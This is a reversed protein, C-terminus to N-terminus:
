NLVKKSFEFIENRIQCHIKDSGKLYNCLEVSNEIDDPVILGSNNDASNTHTDTGVIVMLNNQNAFKLVMNKNHIDTPQTNIEVGHMFAPDMPEHRLRFPHAQVMLANNKKCYEFLEQQNIRCLDPASRLFNETVGFILFDAWIPQSVSVEIGLFLKFNKSDAYNKACNFESIFEEIWRSFNEHEYYWPQCHNTLMAGQYGGQIKRDILQEFTVQSCKSIGLSHIHVDIKLLIVM